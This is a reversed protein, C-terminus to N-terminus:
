RKDHDDGLGHVHKWKHRAMMKNPLRLCKVEGGGGGRGGRGGKGIGEKGALKRKGREKTNRQGLRGWAATRWM